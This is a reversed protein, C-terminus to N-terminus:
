KRGLRGKPATNKEIYAAVEDWTRFGRCEVKGKKGPAPHLVIITNKKARKATVKVILEGRDMKKADEHAREFFEGVTGKVKQKAM